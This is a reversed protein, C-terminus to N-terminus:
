HQQRAEVAQLVRAPPRTFHDLSSLGDSRLVLGTVEPFRYPNRRPILDDFHSFANSFAGETDEDDHDLYLSALFHCADSRASRWSDSFAPKMWPHLEPYYLCINDFCDQSHRWSRMMAALFSPSTERSFEIILFDSLINACVSIFFALRFHLLPEADSPVGSRSLSDPDRRFADDLSSSRHFHDRFFSASLPDVLDALESSRKSM